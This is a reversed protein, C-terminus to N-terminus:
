FQYILHIYETKRLLSFFICLSLSLSLLQSHFVMESTTCTSLINSSTEKRRRKKTHKKKWKRHKNEKKKQHQRYTTLFLFISFATTSVKDRCVCVCLSLVITVTLRYRIQTDTHIKRFAFNSVNTDLVLFLLIHCFLKTQNFFHIFSHISKRKYIKNTVNLVWKLPEDNVAAFLLLFTSKIWRHYCENWWNITCTYKIKTANM